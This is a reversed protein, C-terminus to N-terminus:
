QKYARGIQNITISKCPSACPACLVGSYICINGTGATGKSTFTFDGGAVATNQQVNGFQSMVVARNAYPAGVNNKDLDFVWQTPSVRVIVNRNEAIALHRAQKLSTMLASAAANVSNSQRWSSFAPIAIAMLIGAISITVMLEILTFGQQGLFQKNKNFTAGM